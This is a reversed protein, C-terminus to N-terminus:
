VGKVIPFSSSDKSGKALGGEENPKRILYERNLNIRGCLIVLIWFTVGVLLFHEQALLETIDTYSQTQM